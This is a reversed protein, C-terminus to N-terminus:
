RSNISFYFKFDEYNNGIGIIIFSLPLYPDEVFADITDDIDKVKGKTLLM